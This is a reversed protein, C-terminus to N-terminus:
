DGCFYRDSHFGCRDAAAVLLIRALRADLADNHPRILGGRRLVIRDDLGLAFAPPLASETSFLGSQRSVYQLVPRVMM